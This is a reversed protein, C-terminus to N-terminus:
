ADHWFVALIHLISFWLLITAGLAHLWETTAADFVSGKGYTLGTVLQLLLLAFVGLYVPMWFPNHAFWKPLPARGLSLYFKATAWTARWELRGPVLAQLLDTRSGFFLLFVRAFFVFVLTHGAILHYDRAADAFEPAHRVLFGTALLAMVLLALAWHVLRLWKGWVPMRKLTERQM